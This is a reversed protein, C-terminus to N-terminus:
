FPIDETEGAYPLHTEPEPLVADEWADEATPDEGAEPQDSGPRVASSEKLFSLDALFDKVTSAFKYCFRLFNRPIPHKAWFPSSKETLFVLINEQLCAGCVPGQSFIM